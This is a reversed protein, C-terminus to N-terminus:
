WLIFWAYYGPSGIKLQEGKHRARYAARRKDAYEKGKDEIYTAYDKFGAAGISAIKKDNKKDHVDIKKKSNTSTKITVGLKKANAQQKPKIQYSM